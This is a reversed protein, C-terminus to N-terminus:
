VYYTTHYHKAATVLGQPTNYPIIHQPQLNERIVHKGVIEMYRARECVNVVHTYQNPIAYSHADVHFRLRGVHMSDYKIWVGETHHCLAYTIAVLYWEMTHHHQTRWDGLAERIHGEPALYELALKWAKWATPCQQIPWDWTSQRGVQRQGRSAWAKITDGEINTIDLMFFSQLYICCYSIEKLEKNIFRGSAVITEM